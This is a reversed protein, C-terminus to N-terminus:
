AGNLVRRVSESRWPGGGPRCLGEGNLTDAIQRLAKKQRRLQKIRAVTEQEEAVPVLAGDVARYGFPPRGGAYGGADRKRAAGAMMRLRIMAREYESVAGLIQRIMKRSPDGPDDRVAYSSEAPSCSFVEVRSGIRWLESLLQEQVILDRALRDLKFVVLGDAEGHGLMHFAQGLGPRHELDTKGSVDEDSLWAVIGHELRPAKWATIEARQTDLGTEQQDTSVRLYAVLRV